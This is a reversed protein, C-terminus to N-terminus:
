SSCYSFVTDDYIKLSAELETYCLIIHRYMHM